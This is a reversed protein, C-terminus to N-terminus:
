LANEPDGTAIADTEHDDEWVLWSGSLGQAVLGSLKNARSLPVEMEQFISFILYPSSYLIKEMM